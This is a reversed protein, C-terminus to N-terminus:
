PSEVFWFGTLNPDTFSVVRRGILCKTKNAELVHYGASTIKEIYAIHKVGRYNFIAVGGVQAPSNPVISAMKPLPIRTKVLSYCNCSVWASEKGLKIAKAAFNLAFEPDLAQEETIPTQLPDLLPPYDLNIQVLGYDGTSSVAAPDLRSESWALNYLTTSSVKTESAIRSIMGEITETTCNDFSLTHSTGHSVECTSDDNTNPIGRLL